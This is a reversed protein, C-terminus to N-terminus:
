LSDFGLSEAIQGAGALFEPDSLREYMLQVGFRM